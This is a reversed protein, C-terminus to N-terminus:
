STLRGQMVRRAARGADSPRRGALKGRDHVDNDANRRAVEEPTFCRSIDVDFGIDANIIAIVKQKTTADQGMKAILIQVARRGIPRPLSEM